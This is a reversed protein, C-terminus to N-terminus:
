GSKLVDQLVNGTGVLEGLRFRVKEPKIQSVQHIEAGNKKRTYQATDLNSQCDLAILEIECLMGTFIRLQKGPKQRRFPLSAGTTAGLANGSGGPAGIGFHQM